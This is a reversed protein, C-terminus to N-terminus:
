STAGETIEWAADQYGPLAAIAAQTISDILRKAESTEWGPHECSQYEYCSCAKLVAVPSLRAYTSLRDSCVVPGDSAANPGPLPGAPYRYRVSAFCEAALTALM